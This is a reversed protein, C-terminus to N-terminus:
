KQFSKTPVEQLTGISHLHQSWMATPHPLKSPRSSAASRSLHIETSLSIILPSAWIQLISIRTAKPRLISPLISHSVQRSHSLTTPTLSLPGRILGAKRRGGPRAWPAIEKQISSNKSVRRSRLRALGRASRFYINTGCLCDLPCSRCSSTSEPSDSQLAEGSGVELYYVKYSVNKARSQGQQM